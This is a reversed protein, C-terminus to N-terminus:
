FYWPSQIESRPIFKTPVYCFAVSLVWFVPLFFVTCVTFFQRYCCVVAELATTNKTCFPGKPLSRELPCVWPVFRAWVCIKASEQQNKCIRAKKWFVFCRPLASNKYSNWPAVRNPAAPGAARLPFHCEKLPARLPARLPDRLPHPSVEWLHM